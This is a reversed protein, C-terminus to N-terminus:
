DVIPQAGVETGPAQASTLKATSLGLLIDPNLQRGLANPRLLQSNTPEIRLPWHATLMM